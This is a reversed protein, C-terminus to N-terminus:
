RIVIKNVYDSPDHAATAHSGSTEGDSCPGDAGFATEQQMPVLYSDDKVGPEERHEIPRMGVVGASPTAVYDRDEELLEELENAVQVFTCRSKPNDQWCRVMIGYIEPPCNKPAAMRQGSKLFDYVDQNPIGPYPKSGKGFIEWLLVGYSWVDTRANYVRREMSEPAMWKIPLKAQVDGSTYYDSEHM